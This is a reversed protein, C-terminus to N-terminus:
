ENVPELILYDIRMTKSFKSTENAAVNTRIRLRVTTMPKEGVAFPSSSYNAYPFQIDKAILFTTMERGKTIFDANTVPDKTIAGGEKMVGSENVYTLYFQVKTSDIDRPLVEPDFAEKPAFVAYINYKAALTNPIDYTVYPQTLSVTTTNVVELYSGGSILERYNTYDKYDIGEVSRRNLIANAYTRGAPNEAEIIIPKHYAELPKHTLSGTMYAKGNSADVPTAQSLLYSPTYFVNGGTSFISDSPFIGTKSRFILDQTITQCTHARQLSDAPFGSTEFTRTISTGSGTESLLTGVTRHYQRINNYAEIWAANNPVIVTYVSDELDVRGHRRLWVNREDFVSDYVVRGDENRYLPTSKSIQFIREDFSTLYNAISDTDPSYKIIEWLNYDFPFIGDVVQLIGNSALWSQPAVEATGMFFRGGAHSYEQYKGNLMKVRVSAVDAVDSTNYIFRAIHNKLLQERTVGDSTYGALAANSPAWVTYTQSDNLLSDLGAEKVLRCFESLEPNNELVQMLTLGNSSEDTRYHEDWANDQCSVPLLCALLAYGATKIINNKM